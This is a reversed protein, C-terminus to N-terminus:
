QNSWEEEGRRKWPRNLPHEEKRNMRVVETFSQQLESALKRMFVKRAMASFRKIDERSASFRLSNDKDV